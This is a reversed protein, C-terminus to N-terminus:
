ATWSRGDRISVADIRPHPSADTLRFAVPLVESSLLDTAGPERFGAPVMMGERNRYLELRWPGRDILLLERTGVKAYFEIKQRSRDDRSVIEVAFDPGGLWHSGRDEAPNGPLFIAVDPCRYNKRWRTPRDSINTGPLITVDDPESLAMDIAKALRYVLRQHDNDAEPSMVYVGDWVEDHRDAGAARRERIMAKLDKLPLILRAM